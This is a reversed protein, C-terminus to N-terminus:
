EVPNTNDLTTEPNGEGASMSDGMTVVLIDNVFIQQTSTSGNVTLKVDYTGEPVRTSFKPQSATGGYDNLGGTSPTIMWTYTLANTSTSSGDFVVEFASPNAYASNNPVAIRGNAEAVVRPTMEWTFGALLRRDELLEIGNSTRRYQRRSGRLTDYLRKRTRKAGHGRFGSILRGFWEIIM